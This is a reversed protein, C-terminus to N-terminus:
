NIQIYSARDAYIEGGEKSTGDQKTVNGIDVDEEQTEKPRGTSDNSDSTIVTIQVDKIQNDKIRVDEKKKRHGEIHQKTEKETNSKKRIWKEVVFEKFKYAIFWFGIHMGFLVIALLANLPDSPDVFPYAFPIDFCLNAIWAFTVYFFPPIVCFIAHHYNTFTINNVMLDAYIVVSNVIHTAFVNFTLLENNRTAADALPFLLAWFVFSVLLTCSCEIHFLIHAIM